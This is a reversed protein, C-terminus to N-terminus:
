NEYIGHCGPTLVAPQLIEAKVFGANDRLVAMVGHQYRTSAAGPNESM